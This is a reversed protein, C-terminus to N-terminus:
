QYSHDWRKTREIGQSNNFHCCSCSSIPKSSRRRGCTWLYPAMDVMLWANVKDAIERFRKFDIERPYASAGAIIMKPKHELTLKEIQEYDLTETETNLGYPIINFLKGSFNVPSGHTLHGGQSLDMGLVTDGPELLAFFVAM